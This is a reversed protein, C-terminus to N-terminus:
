QSFHNSNAASVINFRKAIEESSLARPYLSFEDILGNFQRMAREGDLQGLILYYDGDSVEDIKSVRRSIKGNLYISIKKDDKVAVLHQWRGPLFATESFANVENGKGPWRHLFRLSNPRHILHSEHMLEVVSLHTPIRGGVSSQYMGFVTAYHFRDPNMWIEMSYNGRNLDSIAEDSRLYQHSKHSPEFHLASNNGSKMLGVSGVLSASLGGGTSDEVRRDTVEEFSWYVLPRGALVVRRYEEPITLLSLDRQPVRPLPLSPVADDTLLHKGPVVSLDGGSYVRAGSLTSGDEGLLSVHVEGDYVKVTSEGNASVDAAFETGLDVIAADPTKLTFGIAEEPVKAAAKGRSLYALKESLIQLEAPGELLVSAGSLFVLEMTGEALYLTGPKLYTGAKVPNGPQGDWSVGDIDMVIAVEDQGSLNGPDFTSLGGDNNWHVLTGVLLATIVSAAVALLWPRRMVPKQHYTEAPLREMEYEQDQLQIWAARLEPRCRFDSELEAFDEDSLTGELLANLRSFDRPSLRHISKEKM